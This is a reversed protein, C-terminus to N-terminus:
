FTIEVFDQEKLFGDSVEFTVKIGVLYEEENIATDINVINVNHIFKQVILSIESKIDQLTQQDLPQFIYKMFDTGFDPYYYRDGKKTLLLHKLNSKIADRSTTTMNTFFGEKSEKYPFEIGTYKPQLFDRQM